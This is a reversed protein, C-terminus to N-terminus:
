SAVTLFTSSIIYITYIIYINSIPIIITKAFDGSHPFVATEESTRDVICDNNHVGRLISPNTGLLRFEFHICVVTPLYIPRVTLQTDSGASSSSSSNYNHIGNPQSRVAVCRLQDRSRGHNRSRTWGACRDVTRPPPLFALFHTLLHTIITHVRYRCGVDCADDVDDVDDGGCFVGLFVM